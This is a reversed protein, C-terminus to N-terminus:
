PGASPTAPRRDLSAPRGDIIPFSKDGVRLAWWRSAAATPAQDLLADATFAGVSNYSEAVWAMLQWSGDSTKGYVLPPPSFGTGSPVFLWEAGDPGGLDIAMLVCIRLAPHCDPRSGIADNPAGPKLDAAISEFLSAPLATGAPLVRLDDAALARPKELSAYQDRLADDIEAILRTDGAYRPDRKLRELAQRGQVGLQNGFLHLDFREVPRAAPNGDRCATAAPDTDATADIGCTEPTAASLRLEGRTLRELQSAVTLARFDLLPSQSALLLAVVMAALLPNGTSLRALWRGDRTPLVAWAMLLAHLALIVAVLLATLRDPTWGYQGVRLCIAWIALAAHAPLSLLGASVFRRLWRPYRAEAGGDQYVGNALVVGFLVLWLLLSAARRTQWLADPGKLTVVALFLLALLMVLPLLARALSLCLRLVARLAGSQARSMVLGFGTILGTVPYVFRPQAFLERFEPIGVLAFLAAWLWLVAWAAAVFAVTAALALANDWAHHYLGSYPLGIPLRTGADRWAQLFPLLVFLAITLSTWYPMSVARSAWSGPPCDSGTHVAIAALLMALLGIAIFSFREGAREIALALMLPPAIALTYVLMRLGPDAFGPWQRDIGEHLVLLLVAALEAIVVILWQVARDM